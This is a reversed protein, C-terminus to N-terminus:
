ALYPQWKAANRHDPAEQGLLAFPAPLPGDFKAGTKLVMLIYRRATEARPYSSTILPKMLEIGANPDVFCNSFAQLDNITEVIGTGLWGVMNFDETLNDFRAAPALFPAPLQVNGSTLDNSVDRLYNLRIGRQGMDGMIRAATLLLPPRGQATSDHLSPHSQIRQSAALLQKYRLMAAAHKDQDDEASHPKHAAAWHCLADKLIQDAARLEGRGWDAWGTNSAEIWPQLALFEDWSAPALPAKDDIPHLLLGREMLAQACDEKCAFLNLMYGPVPEALSFPVLVNLSPILRYSNYGMDSFQKILATNVEDGHKLEFMALPSQEAFFTAGGRLIDAEAGEADIKIFDISTGDFKDAALTDLTTLKV